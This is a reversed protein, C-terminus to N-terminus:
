WTCFLHGQRDMDDDEGGPLPLPHHGVEGLHSVHCCPSSEYTPDEFGNARKMRRARNDDNAMAGFLHDGVKRRICDRGQLFLLQPRAM